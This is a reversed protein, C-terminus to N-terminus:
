ETGGPTEWFEDIGWERPKSTTGASKQASDLGDQHDNASLLNANGTNSLFESDGGHGQVMLEYYMRTFSLNNQKNPNRTLHHLYSLVIDDLYTLEFTRDNYAQNIIKRTIGSHKTKRWYGLVTLTGLSTGDPLVAEVARYDDPDIKILLETGFLEPSRSLVPNTYRAKALTIHPAVGSEFSGRVVRTEVDARLQVRNISVGNAKPFILRQKHNHLYAYMLEAPSKSFNSGMKPTINYTAVWVDLIQQAEDVFVEYLEAKEEANDARGEAPSSGTTSPVRHMVRRAVQLFTGEIAWRREPHGLQGLNIVFGLNGRLDEKVINAHHALANDLSVMGWLMNQTEPLIYGMMGSGPPYELNKVTISKMPRWDGLFADILLDQVDQARVESSFVFRCALIGKTLKEVAAILWFREVLRPVYIGPLPEVNMICFKDIKYADVEITDFPINADILGLEGSGLRAHTSGKSGLTLSAKIYDTELVKKIYKQLTRRGGRRENFPWENDKVGADRLLNKFFSYLIGLDFKMGKNLSHFKFIEAILDEEVKPHKKFTATLVGSLSGHQSARKNKFPAKREYGCIHQGPLLARDGWCRGDNDVSAFRKFLRSQESNSIGTQEYIINGNLGAFRLEMARLRPVFIKRTEVDLADVDVFVLESFKEELVRIKKM